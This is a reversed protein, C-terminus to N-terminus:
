LLARRHIDRHPHPTRHQWPTRGRRRRTDTGARHPASAWDLHVDSRPDPGGEGPASRRPRCSRLAGLPEYVLEFLTAAYTANELTDAVIMAMHQGVYHITLDSLPPRRELPLDFTLDPPLQHLPPCNLPTLVSLVGPAAAARAASAQLSDVTVNAHPVESQVLVAYTLDTIVTDAAYRARGLVKDRAEVRSIPRGVREPTTTM